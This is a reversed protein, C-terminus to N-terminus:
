RPVTSEIRHLKGPSPTSRDAVNEIRQQPQQPQQHHRQIPATTGTADASLARGHSGIESSPPAALTTVASASRPRRQQVAAQVFSMEPVASQSERDRTGAGEEMRLRKAEHESEEIEFLMELENRDEDPADVFKNFLHFRDRAAVRLARWVKSAKATAAAEAQDPRLADSIEEEDKKILPRFSEPLPLVHRHYM